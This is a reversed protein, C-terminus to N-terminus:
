VQRGGNVIVSDETAVHKAWLDHLAPALVIVLAIASAVFVAMYGHGRQYSLWGLVFTSPVMIALLGVRAVRRSIRFFLATAAALVLFVISASTEVSQVLRGIQGAVLLQEQCFFCGLLGPVPHTAVYGIGDGLRV